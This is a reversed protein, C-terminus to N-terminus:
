GSARTGPACRILFFIFSSFEGPPPLKQRAFERTFGLIKGTYQPYPFLCLFDVHLATTYQSHVHFAPHRL